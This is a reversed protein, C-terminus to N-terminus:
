SSALRLTTESPPRSAEWANFLYLALGAFISVDALNFIVTSIGAVQVMMFDVVHGGNFLRDLLNSVGGSMVLALALGARGAYGRRKLLFTFVLTLTLGIGFTFLWFRVEPPLDHGISFAIGSNEAYFLHLTDSLMRVPPEALLHDRAMDKTVQDCGIFSCFIFLLLFTHQRRTM